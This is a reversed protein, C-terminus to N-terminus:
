GGGADPAPSIGMFLLLREAGRNEVGHEVGAPAWVVTGERGPRVEEGVSFTGEGEMVVYFKDQGAHVHVRQIQGPELCNVGLMLRPSRFLTDKFHKPASRGARERIDTFHSM